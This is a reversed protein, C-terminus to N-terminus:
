LTTLKFIYSIRVRKVFKDYYFTMKRVEMQSADSLCHTQPYPSSLFASFFTFYSLFFPCIQQLSPSIGNFEALLGFTFITRYFSFFKLDLHHLIVDAIM